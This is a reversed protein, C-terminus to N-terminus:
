RPDRDAALAALARRDPKGSALLPMGEVLLLRVPRAAPTLGAADTARVLTTLADSAAAADTSPAVVAPREGWQA